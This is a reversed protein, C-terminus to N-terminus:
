EPREGYGVIKGDTTLHFAYIMTQGREFRGRYRLRRSKGAPKREVLEFSTLGGRDAFQAAVEALLKDTLRSRVEVAFQELDIKGEAFQEVVERLRRTLEPETDEIPALPRPMLESAVMGAVHHVIGGPDARSEASLNALAAVTLNDDTYRAIHSTFGQWAGGHEVVAHGNIKTSVWGFGYDAENVDGSTLKVPTWMLARTVPQLLNDDRLGADWRALDLITLYLSGDATRNMTPSVWEQNKLQGAVRRYGAARHPVIDAESIVRATTMGLPKFIREALLDGYFQGSIKKIVIGLTVYGPNSYKWGTGPEYALPVSYIAKLLEEDTYDRKFDFGSPLDGIGATHSLLQRFTIPQWADPARASLRRM